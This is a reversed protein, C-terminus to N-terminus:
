SRRGSIGQSRKQGCCGSCCCAQLRYLIGDLDTVTGQTTNQIIVGAGILPEGTIIDVVKGRIKEQGAAAADVAASIFFLSILTFVLGSQVIGTWGTKMQVM